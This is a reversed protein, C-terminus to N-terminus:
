FCEFADVDRKALLLLLLSLVVVAVVIVAMMVVVAVIVTVGVCFFFSIQIINEKSNQPVGSVTILVREFYTFM